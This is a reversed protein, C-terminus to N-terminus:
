ALCQLWSGDWMLAGLGTLFGSPGGRVLQQALKALSIAASHQAARM